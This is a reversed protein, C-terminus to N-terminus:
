IQGIFFLNIRLHDNKWLSSVLGETTYCAAVATNRLPLDRAHTVTCSFPPGDALLILECHEEGGTGALRTCM